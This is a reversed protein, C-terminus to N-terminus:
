RSVHKHGPTSSYTPFSSFNWRPNTSFYPNSHHFDHSYRPAYISLHSKSLTSSNCEGSLIEAPCDTGILPNHAAALPNEKHRMLLENNYSSGSITHTWIQIYWAFGIMLVFLMHMSMGDINSICTPIHNDKCNFIKSELPTSLRSDQSTPSM